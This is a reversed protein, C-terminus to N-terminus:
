LVEGLDFALDNLTDFQVNAWLIEENVDAKLILGTEAEIKLRTDHGIRFECVPFGSLVCGEFAPSRYVASGRAAESFGKLRFVSGASLRTKDDVHNSVATAILTMISWILM